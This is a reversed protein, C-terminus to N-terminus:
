RRRREVLAEVCRVAATLLLGGVIGIALDKLVDLAVDAAVFWDVM